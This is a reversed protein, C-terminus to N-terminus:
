CCSCRACVCVGHLSYGAQRCMCLSSVCVFACYLVHMVLLSYIRTCLSTFCHRNKPARRKCEEKTERAAPPSSFHAPRGHDPTRCLFSVCPRGCSCDADAVDACCCRARGADSDCCTLVAGTAAHLHHHTVSLHGVTASGQSAWSAHTIYISHLHFRTFISISHVRSPVCALTM